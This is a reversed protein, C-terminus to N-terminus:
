DLHQNSRVDSMISDDLHGIPRTGPHFNYPDENVWRITMKNKLGDIFWCMFQKGDPKQNSDNGNREVGGFM